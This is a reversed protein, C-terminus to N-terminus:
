ETKVKASYPHMGRTNKVAKLLDGVKCAAADYKVVAEHDSLSVNVDKVGRVKKLASQM